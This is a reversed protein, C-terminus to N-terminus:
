RKDNEGLQQDIDGIVCQLTELSPVGSGLIGMSPLCYPMESAMALSNQAVGRRIM